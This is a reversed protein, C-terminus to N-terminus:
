AADPSRDVTETKPSWILASAIGSAATSVSSADGACIPTSVREEPQRVQQKESGTPTQTSARGTFRGDHDGGVRRAGREEHRDRPPRTRRARRSPLEVRDDEEDPEHADEEIERVAREERCPAARARAQLWRGGTSSDRAERVDSARREGPTSTCSSVAGIAIRASANENTADANKRRPARPPRVRGPAV